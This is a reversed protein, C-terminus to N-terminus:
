CNQNSESAQKIPLPYIKEFRGHNETEFVDQDKRFENIAQRRMQNKQKLTLKTMMRDKKEEYLRRLKQKKKDVSLGLLNFM